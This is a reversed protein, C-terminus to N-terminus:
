IFATRCFLSLAMLSRWSCNRTLDAVVFYRDGESSSARISSISASGKQDYNGAWFLVSSRRLWLTLNPDLVGPSFTANHECNGIRCILVSRISDVASGTAAKAFIM